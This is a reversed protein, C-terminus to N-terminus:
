LKDPKEMTFEINVGSTMAWSLPNTVIFNDFNRNCITLKNGQFDQKIFKYLKLNGWSWNTIQYEWGTLRALVQIFKIVREKADNEFKYLEGTRILNFPNGDRDSIRLRDGREKEISIEDRERFFKDMELMLEYVSYKENMFIFHLLNIPNDADLYHLWNLVNEPYGFLNQFTGDTFLLPCIASEPIEIKYKYGVISLLFHITALPYKLRFDHYGDYNIIIPFFQVM